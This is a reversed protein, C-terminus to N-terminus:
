VHLDSTELCWGNTRLRENMTEYAVHRRRLDEATEARLCLVKIGEGHILRLTWCFDRWARTTSKPQHFWFGLTHVSPPLSDPYSSSTPPISELYRNHEEVSAVYITVYRLCPLCRCTSILRSLYPHGPNYPVTSDLILSTVNGSLPRSLTFQDPIYIQRLASLRAVTANPYFVTTRITSNALAAVFDGRCSHWPFDLIQVSPLALTCQLLRGLFACDLGFYHMKVTLVRLNTCHRLLSVVAKGLTEWSDDFHPGQISLNLRKVLHGFSYKELANLLGQCRSGGQDLIVVSEFLYPLVIRYWTKCVLIISRRLFRRKRLARENLPVPFNLLKPADQLPPNVNCAWRFIEELIEEPFEPLNVQQEDPHTSASAVKALSEVPTM